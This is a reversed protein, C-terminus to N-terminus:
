LLFSGEHSIGIAHFDRTSINNSKLPVVGTEVVYMGTDISM